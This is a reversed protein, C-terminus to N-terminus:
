RYDKGIWAENGNIRTRAATETGAVKAAGISTTSHTVHGKLQRDKDYVPLKQTSGFGM